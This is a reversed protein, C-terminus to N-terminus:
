HARPASLENRRIKGLSTRPLSDVLELAKPAAHRPLVHRVRAVLDALAPPDAGDVPVVVAVIRQGWEDDDRGVVAVQAVRPDVALVAEVDTPWVKEGGTVIVDGARGDVTLRGTRPDISGLDGTPFWGRGDRPDIGDRYARLLTPSRLMIQGDDIQVAVGNLALGDYFAGGCTETMGYTGITNAPRDSPLHSGGLLIVRFLAPDIRGLATPVLSTYTFGRGAAETVAAADFGDHVELGAGTILARAVVGFGGVHHVPLCALWRADPDVGVATASMYASAELADHTLVAARQMGSTGSTLLVAADGAEVPRGGELRHEGETDVLADAALTALQQAQLPHPTAPDIPAVADGDDWIRRLADVFGPGGRLALAV